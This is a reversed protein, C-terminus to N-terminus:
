LPYGCPYGRTTNDRTIPPIRPHSGNQATIQGVLHLVKLSFTCIFISAKPFPIDKKTRRENVRNKEFTKPSVRCPNHGKPYFERM